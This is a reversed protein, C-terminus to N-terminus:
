LGSSNVLLRETVLVMTVCLIFGNRRLRDDEAEKRAPCCTRRGDKHESGYYCLEKRPATTTPKTAPLKGGGDDIDVPTALFSTFPPDGPFREDLSEAVSRLHLTQQTIRLNVNTMGERFENEKFNLVSMDSVNTMEGRMATMEEELKKWNPM